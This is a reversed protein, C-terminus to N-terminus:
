DADTQAEKGAGSEPVHKPCFYKGEVKRLPLQVEGCECCGVYRVRGGLAKRAQRNM